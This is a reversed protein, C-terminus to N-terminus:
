PGQSQIRSLFVNELINKEDKWPRRARFQNACVMRKFVLSSSVRPEIDLM